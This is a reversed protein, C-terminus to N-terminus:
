HRNVRRELIKVVANLKIKKKIFKITLQTMADFIESLCNGYVFCDLASFHKAQEHKRQPPPSRPGGSLM